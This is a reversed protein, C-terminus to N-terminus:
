GLRQEENEDLRQIFIEDSMIGFSIGNSFPLEHLIVLLHYM